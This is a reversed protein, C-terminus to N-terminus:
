TNLTEENEGFIVGRNFLTLPDFIKKIDIMLRVMRPGHEIELFETKGRGIGHEGTSTGDLEIAKLVLKRHIELARQQQLPDARDFM